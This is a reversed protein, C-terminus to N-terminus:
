DETLDLALHTALLNKIEAIAEKYKGKHVEVAIGGASRWEECNSNRDDVLIDGPKCHLQKDVAYPGFHVPIDPFYKQVWICKDWFAWHVDNGKPIASLFLLEWGLDYKFKRALSVLEDALPMIELDRYLRPNVKLKKWEGPEWKHGTDKKKLLREAYGNFDAVVGDMDIYFTKKNM